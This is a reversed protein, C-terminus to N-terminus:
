SNADAADGNRAGKTARTILARGHVGTGTGAARRRRTEPDTRMLVVMRRVKPGWSVHLARDPGYYYLAHFDLSHVIWSAIEDMREEWGAVKFDCAAGQHICVPRDRLNLECSAHQDDAPSIRPNPTARIARSLEASCFGFTLSVPGFERWVADLVTSALQSLAQWTAAQVPLNDLRQNGIALRHWTEGCDILDRFSFFESAMRDLSDAADPLDDSSPWPLSSGASM